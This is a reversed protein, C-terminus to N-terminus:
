AWYLRGNVQSNQLYIYKSPMRGPRAKFHWSMTASYKLALEAMVLCGTGFDIGPFVFLSQAMLFVRIHLTAADPSSTCVLKCKCEASKWPLSLLM